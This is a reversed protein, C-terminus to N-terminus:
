HQTRDGAFSLEGTFVGAFDSDHCFLVVTRFDHCTLLLPSVKLKAKVSGIRLDPEFVALYRSTEKSNKWGAPKGYFM